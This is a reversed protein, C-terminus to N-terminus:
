RLLVKAFVATFAACVLGGGWLWVSGSGGARWLLVAALVAGAVAPLPILVDIGKVLLRASTGGARVRAVSLLAFWPVQLLAAAAPLFPLWATFDM